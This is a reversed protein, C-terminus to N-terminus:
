GKGLCSGFQEELHHSPGILVMAEHDGGIEGKLAPGFDQSIFSQGSGKEVAEGVSYMDDFGIPLAVSESLGLFSGLTM